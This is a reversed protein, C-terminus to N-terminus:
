PVSLPATRNPSRQSLARKTLQTGSIRHIISRSARVADLRMRRPRERKRKVVHQTFRQDICM